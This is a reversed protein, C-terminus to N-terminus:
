EGAIVSHLPSSPEWVLKGDTAGGDKAHKEATAKLLAAVSDLNALHPTIPGHELCDVTFFRFGFDTGESAECRRGCQPCVIFTESHGDEEVKVMIKFDMIVPEAPTEERNYAPATHRSSDKQWDIDWRRFVSGSAVLKAAMYNFYYDRLQDVVPSVKKDKLLPAWPYAWRGNDMKIKMNASMVVIAQVHPLSEKGTDKKYKLMIRECLILFDTPHHLRNNENAILVLGFADPKNLRRKSAKIQFNAKLIHNKISPELLACWEDQLDLSLDKLRLMTQGIPAVRGSAQWRAFMDTLAAYYEDSPDELLTKQEVILNLDPYWYDASPEGEETSFPILTGGVAVTIDRWLQESKAFQFM